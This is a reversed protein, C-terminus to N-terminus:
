NAYVGNHPSSIHYFQSFALKLLLLLDSRMAHLVATRSCQFYLIRLHALSGLLRTCLSFLEWVPQSSRSVRPRVFRPVSACVRVFVHVGVRFCVPVYSSM